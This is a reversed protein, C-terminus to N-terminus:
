MNNDTLYFPVSEYNKWFDGYSKEGLLGFMTHHRGFHSFPSGGVSLLPQLPNFHRTEPRPNLGQLFVQNSAWRIGAESGMWQSIRDLDEASKDAILGLTSTTSLRDGVDKIIYPQTAGPHTEYYGFRVGGESGDERAKGWTWTTDGSGWSSVNWWPEKGAPTAGWDETGIWVPERIPLTRQPLIHFTSGLGMGKYPWDPNDRRNQYYIASIATGVFQDTLNQEIESMTPSEDGGAPVMWFDEYYTPFLDTPRQWSLSNNEDGPIYTLSRSFGGINPDIGYASTNNPFAGPINFTRQPLTIDEQLQEDYYDIDFGAPRTYALSLPDQFQSVKPTGLPNWPDLNGFRLVGGGVVAQEDTLKANEAYLNFRRENNITEIAGYGVLPADELGTDHFGIGAKIWPDLGDPSIHISGGDISSGDNFFDLTALRGEFIGRRKESITDSAHPGFVTFSTNEDPWISSHPTNGGISSYWPYDTLDGDVDIFIDVLKSQFGTATSYPDRTGVLPINEEYTGGTGWHWGTNGLLLPSGETGLQTNFTYTDIEYPYRSPFLGSEGLYLNYDESIDFNPSADWGDGVADDTSYSWVGNSFTWNPAEFPGSIRGLSVLPPSHGSFEGAGADSWPNFQSLQTSPGRGGDVYPTLGWITGLLSSMDTTGDISAIDAPITLTTPDFHPPIRLKNPDELNDFISEPVTVPNDVDYPFTDYQGTTILGLDIRHLYNTTSLEWDHPGFISFVEETGFLSSQPTDTNIPSKGAWTLDVNEYIGVIQSRVGDIGVVPPLTITDTYRGDTGAHWGLNGFLPSSAPGLQQTLKFLGTDFGLGTHYPLEYPLRSPFVGDPGLYLLNGSTDFNPSGDYDVFTDPDPNYELIGDNDIDTWQPARLNITIRGLPGGKGIKHANAAYPTKDFSVAPFSTPGNTVVSPIEYPLRSPFVGDGGFYKKLSGFDFNPSGGLDDVAVADYNETDYSWYHQNDGFNVRDPIVGPLLIRGLQISPENVTGLMSGEAREPFPKFPDGTGPSTWNAVYGSVGTGWAGHPLPFTGTPTTTYFESTEATDYRFKVVDSYRHEEADYWGTNGFLPSSVPGLQQDLRVVGGLPDFGLGTHYPLEFSSMANEGTLTLNSGFHPPIRLKNPDALDDFISEPVDTGDYPFTDYQGTIIRGLNVRSLFKGPEYVDDGPEGTPPHLSWNWPEGAEDGLGIHISGQKWGDLLSYSPDGLLPDPITIQMQFPSTNLSLHTFPVPYITDFNGYTKTEEPSLDHFIQGPWPEAYNPWFPDDPSYQSVYNVLPTTTSGHAPYVIPTDDFQEITFPLEPGTSIYQPIVYPLGVDFTFPDFNPSTLNFRGLGASGRTFENFISAEPEDINAIYMLGRNFGSNIDTQYNDSSFHTPYDSLPDLGSGHANPLIATTELMSDYDEDGFPGSLTIQPINHTIQDGTFALINSPYQETIGPPVTTAEIIPVRYNNDDDVYISSRGALSKLDGYYDGGGGIVGATDDTGIHVSGQKWGIMTATEMIPTEIETTIWGDGMQVEEQQIQGSYDVYDQLVVNSVFKDYRTETSFLGSEREYYHMFPPTSLPLHAFPVTFPNDFNGYSKSGEIGEYTHFIDTSHISAYEGDPQHKSVYDGIPTTYLDRISISGDSRGSHKGSVTHSLPTLSIEDDVVLQSVVDGELSEMDMTFGLPAGGPYVFTRGKKTGDMVDSLGYPGRTSPETTKPGFKSEMDALSKQNPRNFSKQGTVGDFSQPNNESGISEYDTWKFNELNQTLKIISM